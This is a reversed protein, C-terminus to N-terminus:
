TWPYIGCCQAKSLIMSPEMRGALYFSIWSIKKSVATIVGIFVDQGEGKYEEWLAMIGCHWPALDEGCVTGASM